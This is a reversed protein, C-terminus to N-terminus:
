SKSEAFPRVNSAVQHILCVFRVASFGVRANTAPAANCPTLFFCAASYAASTWLIACEPPMPRLFASTSLAFGLHTQLVSHRIKSLLRNTKYMVSNRNEFVRDAIWMMVKQVAIV